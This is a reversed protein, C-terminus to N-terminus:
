FPNIFPKYISFGTLIISVPFVPSATSNRTSLSHPFSGYYCRIVILLPPVGLNDFPQNVLSFGPLISSRPTGGNSSVDLQSFQSPGQFQSSPWHPNGWFPQNIFPKYHFIQHSHILPHVGGAYIHIEHNQPTRTWWKHPAVGAIEDHDWIPPTARWLYHIAPTCGWLHKNIMPIPFGKSNSVLCKLDM